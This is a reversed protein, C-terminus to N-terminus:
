RKIILIINTNSRINNNNDHIINLMICGFKVNCGFANRM